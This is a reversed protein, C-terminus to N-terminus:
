KIEDQPEMLPANERLSDRQQRSTVTLAVQVSWRRDYESYPPPPSARSSGVSQHDFPSIMSTGAQSRRNVTNLDSCNLVTLGGDPQTQQLSKPRRRRRRLLIYGGVLSAFVFMLGVVMGVLAEISAHESQGHSSYSTSQVSATGIQRSSYTTSSTGNTESASAADSTVQTTYILRDLLCLSNSTESGCTMTFNHRGYPLDEKAFLTVNYLYTTESDVAATHNYSGVDQDDIQFSMISNNLSGTTEPITSVVIGKAYIASGVFFFSAQSLYEQSVRSSADHWTGNFARSPDPKALCGVCDQTNWGTGSTITKNTTGYLIQFGSLPDPLSDDVSINLSSTM